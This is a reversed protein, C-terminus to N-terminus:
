WGAMAQVIIIIVWLFALCVSLSSIFLLGNLVRKSPFPDHRMKKWSEMGVGVMLALALSFLTIILVVYPLWISTKM